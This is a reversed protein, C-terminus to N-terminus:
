VDGEAKNTRMALFIMSTVGYSGNGRGHGRRKDCFTGNDRGFKIMLVRIFLSLGDLDMLVTVIWKWNLDSKIRQKVRVSEGWIVLMGGKSSIPDVFEWRDKCKLRRCVTNVFGNKQKTESLFTINPLSLRISEKLQPITSPRGLGRRNWALLKM